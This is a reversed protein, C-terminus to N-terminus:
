EDDDDDDTDPWGESCYMQQETYATVRCGATEYKDVCAVAKAHRQYVKETIKGTVPDEIRIISSYASPLSWSGANNIVERFSAQRFAQDPAEAIQQWNNNFPDTM